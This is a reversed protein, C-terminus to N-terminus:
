AIAPPITMGIIIEPVKLKQAINKSGDVLFDSGKVLLFFGFLVLILYLM